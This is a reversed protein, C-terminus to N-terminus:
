LHPFWLVLSGSSVKYVGTTVYEEERTKKNLQAISGTEIGEYSAYSSFAAIKKMMSTYPM